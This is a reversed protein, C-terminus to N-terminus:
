STHLPDALAGDSSGSARLPSTLDNAPAFEGETEDEDVLPAALLPKPFTAIRRDMRYEDRFFERVIRGESQGRKWAIGDERALRM